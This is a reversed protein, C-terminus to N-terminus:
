PTAGHCDAITGATATNKTITKGDILVECGVTAGDTGAATVSFFAGTGLRVTIQHPVPVQADIAGGSDSYVVSASRSSGSVKYLM